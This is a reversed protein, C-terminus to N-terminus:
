YNANIEINEPTVNIEKKAAGDLELQVNIIHKLRTKSLNEDLLYDSLKRGTLPSQKWEGQSTGALLSVHQESSEGIVFDGGVIKLTNDDNLLIDKAM